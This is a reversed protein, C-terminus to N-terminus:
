QHSSVKLEVPAAFSTLGGEVTGGVYFTWTMPKVWPECYLVFQRSTQQENILVGNLGVDLVRVGHPLNRVDVPVRGAFGNHREIRATMVVQKGPQIAVQPRDTAVTLDPKPLVTLLRVGREADLTRAVQAGNILANGVLRFALKNTPTMADAEAYLALSCTSEGAQILGETAHFRPPLDELRVKIEGEFGDLREATFTLAVNGGQPVGPHEPSMSLRFDPQPERIILRYSSRHSLPGRGRADRVNVLYEGYAPPTFTLRSDKGYLPGGDDNRYYVNFVPMGNPAFSKGAPHIQVKYVPTNVAHAVPTTDLFTVRQGRFSRLKVDEDPGLPLQVVQMIEGGCYLYDNIALDTWSLLRLGSSASDRDSLTLATEAVPRLTARPIPHGTLDLVEIVSDVPSGLRRAQTEIILPTGKKALFKFTDLSIGMRSNIAGPTTVTPLLGTARPNYNFERQEGAAVRVPHLSEVPLTITKPALRGESRGGVNAPAEVRVTKQKLNFGTLTFEAATGQQLGLPFVSTVLPFEGLNLRYSVDGGSQNEFDRIRVVYRGDKAFRYGLLSDPRYDYDNNEALTHGEADLLTLVSNLRSRIQSAVVEFVLEQGAKADFRFYDAEGPTALAGIITCPPTVPQASTLANCTAQKAVEPWDGVAFTVVGTTGHPTQAFVRHIGIRTAAGLTASVKIQNNAKGDSVIKADIADDDFFVASAGALNAGNLALTVTGGRVVGSPTTSSLSAPTLAALALSRVTLAMATILGITLIPKM